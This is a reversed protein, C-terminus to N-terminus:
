RDMKAQKLRWYGWERLKTNSVPGRLGWSPETLYDVVSFRIKRYLGTLDRRIEGNFDIEKGAKTTM